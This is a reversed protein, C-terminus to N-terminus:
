LCVVPGIQGDDKKAKEKHFGFNAGSSKAVKKKIDDEDVDDESRAMVSM